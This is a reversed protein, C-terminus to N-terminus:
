FAKNKLILEFKGRMVGELNHTKTGLIHDKCFCDIFNYTRVKNGRSGGGLQQQRKEGYVTSAQSNRQENVRATLIRIAEERNQKQSRENQIFVIIGTPVHKAKIATANRQASQGGSHLRCMEHSIVLESDPLPKHNKIPPLPLVAVSIM